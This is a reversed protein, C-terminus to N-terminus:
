SFMVQIWEDESLYLIIDELRVGKLASRVATEEYPVDYLRAILEKDLDGVLFYDGM